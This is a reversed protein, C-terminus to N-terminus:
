KRPLSDYYSHCDSPIHKKLLQLHNFKEKEISRRAKHLPPYNELVIKMPRQTLDRYEDDFDTKYQIIGTPLYRLAKLDIVKKDDRKRGLRISKYIQNVGSYDKSFTNELFVAGYPMPHKRAERALQAYQSPLNYKM